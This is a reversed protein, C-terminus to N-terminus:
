FRFLRNVKVVFARNRLGRVLTPTAYREDTQDREDTYVLFIESGPAYEWRFRLNSSLTRDASNYQLLATAFMLPSFSYDIRARALRTTFTADPLEIRTIAFTPEVSLRTSLAMRAPSLGTGGVSVSWLSGNYYEGAQVSIAGSVPRQAGFTYSAKVDSFTYGGAAIPVPSGAPTFPESLMEFDRTVELSVQDSSEFETNFLGTWVRAEVLGSGNEIYEGSGTWSFKRVSPMSQPRPSFRLSGFSRTFDTRRTFGVEPQFNAGVSLLEARAGYRDANWDARAQYSQDDGTIGTTATRAWYGGLTVNQPLVFAGDVGFAQNSGIGSSLNSRNTVM